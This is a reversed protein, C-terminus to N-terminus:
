LCLPSILGKLFAILKKIRNFALPSHATGCQTVPSRLALSGPMAGRSEREGGVDLLLFGEEPMGPGIGSLGLKDEVVGVKSGM